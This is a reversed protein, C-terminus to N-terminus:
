NGGKWREDVVNWEGFSLSSHSIVSASFHYERWDLLVWILTVLHHLGSSENKM